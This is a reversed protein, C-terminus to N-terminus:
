MVRLQVRTKLTSLLRTHPWRGHSQSELLRPILLTPMAKFVLGHGDVATKLRVPLQELQRTCRARSVVCASSATSSRRWNSIVDRRRSAKCASHRLRSQSESSVYVRINVYTHRGTQLTQWMEDEMNHGSKTSEVGNRLRQATWRRLVPKGPIAMANESPFLTPPCPFRTLLTRGTSTAQRWSYPRM